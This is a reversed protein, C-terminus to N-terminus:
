EGGEKDEADPLPCDSHLYNWNGSYCKGSPFCLWMQGHEQNPQYHTVPHRERFEALTHIEVCRKCNLNYTKIELRKM